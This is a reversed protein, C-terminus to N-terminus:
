ECDFDVGDYDFYVALLNTVFEVLLVVHLVHVHDLCFLRNGDLFVRQDLVVDVFDSRQYQDRHNHNDDDLYDCSDDCHNVNCFDHHHDYHDYLNGTM